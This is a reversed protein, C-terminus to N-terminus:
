LCHLFFITKETKAKLLIDKTTRGATDRLIIDQIRPFRDRGLFVCFVFVAMVIRESHDIVNSM